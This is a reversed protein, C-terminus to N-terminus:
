LFPNFIVKPYKKKLISWGVKTVHTTTDLDKPVLMTGIGFRRWAQKVHVYHLTKPYGLISYGLIVDREDKLCAVAVVTTPLHLIKEIVEHYKDFYITQDIQGFTDNGFRLGKLWTAYIFPSDGEEADRVTVLDAVSRKEDGKTFHPRNEDGRGQEHDHGAGNTGNSNETFIGRGHPSAM